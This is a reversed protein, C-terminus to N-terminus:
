LTDQIDRRQMTVWDWGFVRLNENSLIVDLKEMWLKDYDETQVLLTSQVNSAMHFTFAIKKSNETSLIDLQGDLYQCAGSRPSPSLSGTCPPVECWWLDRPQPHIIINPDHPSTGTHPFWAGPDCQLSQKHGSRVQGLRDNFKIIRESDRTQPYKGHWCLLLPAINLNQHHSTIVQCQCQTPVPGPDRWIHVRIRIMAIEMEYKPGSINDSLYDWYVHQM